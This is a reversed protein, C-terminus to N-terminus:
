SFALQRFTNRVGTLPQRDRTGNLKQRPLEALLRRSVRSDEPTWPGWALRRM